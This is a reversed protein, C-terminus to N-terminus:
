GDSTREPALRTLFNMYGALDFAQVYTGLEEAFSKHEEQKALDALKAEIGRVYGIEGLRLLDEIHSTGPSKIPKRPSTPVALSTDSEYVWVLGLHAALKDALRRIDVPKAIADNHGEDGSSAGSSDGINASLMVIPATQGIERLRGVLQWGSMGPMSIDVLFLDPTVGEILTLCDPGSNATLVVFDMPVLLERMLDRHDENDDVVMITRRPGTYSVIKKEAAPATNPREVASLMLRVKFISGEGKTSAVAIEGGLTNTLLQTITLGLGLGPMPRISEAEGRQFPEYIRSLDKEAIGRGTDSVTFTAVQSRYAVEFRVKGEDTFKIANSLLNVLIQRLRKEDTRVYQPLSRAREHEFELGKAQAQLGFMEVIQDLFDQINIENSYVQLRGAEIKSIDLLGDILGSLHDASRKIVKIASQRPPPITEDRELIQAYGLVANLPTRL